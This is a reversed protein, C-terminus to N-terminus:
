LGIAAGEVDTVAGVIWSRARAASSVRLTLDDGRRVGARPAVPFVFGTDPDSVDVRLPEDPAGGIVFRGDSGTVDGGEWASELAESRASVRWTPLGEGEDDIVRGSVVRTPALALDLRIEEGAVADRRAEALGGEDHRARAR